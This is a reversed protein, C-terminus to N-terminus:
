VLVMHQGTQRVHTSPTPPHDRRPIPRANDRVRGSVHRNPLAQDPQAGTEKRGHDRRITAMCGTEAERMGKFIGIGRQGSGALLSSVALWLLIHHYFLPGASGPSLCLRRPYPGPMSCRGAPSLPGRHHQRIDSSLSGSHAAGRDTELRELTPDWCLTQRLQRRM